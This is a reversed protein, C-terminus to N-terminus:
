SGRLVEGGREEVVAFRETNWIEVRDFAGSVLVKSNLELGAFTRLKPDLNIRGQGDVAVEFTNAALARLVDRSAEGRGVKATWDNAIEEFKEPTLVDICGAEGFTLYCNPEFRPRFNAPLAVRGKPDLQRDLKGVFM